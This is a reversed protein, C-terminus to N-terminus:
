VLCVNIEREQSLGLQGPSMPCSGLTLSGNRENENSQQRPCSAALEYRLHSSQAEARAKWGVLLARGGPLQSM